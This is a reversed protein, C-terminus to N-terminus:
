LSVKELIFNQFAENLDSPSLKNQKLAEMLRPFEPLESIKHEKAMAILKQLYLAFNEFEKIDKQSIVRKRGLM